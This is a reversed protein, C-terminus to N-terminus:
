AATRKRKRARQVGRDFAADLENETLPAAEGSNLADYIWKAHIASMRTDDADFSRQLRFLIEQDVSRFSRQAESELKSRLPEPVNKLTYDAM